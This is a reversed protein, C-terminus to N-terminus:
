RDGDPATENSSCTLEVVAAGTDGKTLYGQPTRGYLVSLLCRTQVKKTDDPQLSADAFASPIGEAKLYMNSEVEASLFDLCLLGKTVPNRIIM